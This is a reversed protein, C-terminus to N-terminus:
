GTEALPKAGARGSKGPELGVLVHGRRASHYFACAGGFPQDEPGHLYRGLPGWKSEVLTCDAAFRVVGTHVIEGGAGRYVALDGAAPTSILAYQNDALIDDVQDGAVWFRGGTFIWGHCNHSPDPRTRAIVKRSLDHLRIHDNEVGSLDADPVPRASAGLHVRRGRDTVVKVGRVERLEIRYDARPAAGAPGVESRASLQQWWLAALLPPGLLLTAAPLRSRRLRPLALVMGGLLAGGVGLSLPLLATATLNPM